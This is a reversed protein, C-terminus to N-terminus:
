GHKSKNTNNNSNSRALIRTNSSIKSFIKSYETHKCNSTIDHSNNRNQRNKGNKSNKSNKDNNNDNDNKKKNNNDNSINNRNPNQKNNTTMNNKNRNHDDDDSDSDSGFFPRKINASPLPTMLDPEHDDVLAIIQSDITTSSLMSDRKSNIDDDTAWVEIESQEKLGSLSMRAGNSNSNSNSGNITFSHNFYSDMSTQGSMSEYISPISHQQLSSSDQKIKTNANEISENSTSFSFFSLCLCYCCIVVFLFLLLLLICLDFCLLVFCLM